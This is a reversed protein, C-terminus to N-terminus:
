NKRKRRKIEKLIMQYERGMEGSVATNEQARRILYPIVEKIQGYPMYKMANFGAAALNFTIQDSMGYLQCFNLHPHHTPIGSELMAKAQLRNSELNHSANYSVIHQYHQVCFAIAADYDQDTAAKDKQIPSPYNNALARAREKEMYAGRVIKAGLFYGEQKAAASANKLYDLKDHRYMQFTNFIVAREKNHQKQLKTVLDDIVEQIWSEEADVFLAVNNDEASQGIFSLRKLLHQYAEKESKSLPVKTQIKELLEFKALATIKISIISVHQHQTSFDIARLVEEMSANFDKETQKAEGGYDLVTKVNQNALQSIALQCDALSTGGCFHDFITHRIIPEVLPLKYKIAWLALNSGWKVLWSHNMISFIWAAKRLDSNSKGAFATALNTFDLSQRQQNTQQM